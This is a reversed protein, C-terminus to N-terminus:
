TKRYRPPVVADDLYVWRKMRLCELASHVEPSDAQRPVGAVPKGDMEFLRAGAENLLGIAAARAAEVAGIPGNDEGPLRLVERVEEWDGPPQCGLCRWPRNLAERWVTARGCTPCPREVDDGHDRRLVDLLQGKHESLRQYLEQTLAHKPGRVRLHEGEALLEVGCARIYGILARALTLDAM